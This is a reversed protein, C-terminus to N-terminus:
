PLPPVNSRRAVTRQTPQFGVGRFRHLLGVLATIALPYLYPTPLHYLGYAIVPVTFHAIYDPMWRAYAYIFEWAWFTALFVALFIM